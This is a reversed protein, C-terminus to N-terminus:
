KLDKTPYKADVRVDSLFDRRHGFHKNSHSIVCLSMCACECVCVCMSVCECVGSVCVSSECM